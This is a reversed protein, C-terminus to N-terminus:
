LSKGGDVAVIQGTVYDSEECLFRVMRAVDEPTGAKGAPVRALERRRREEDFDEPWAVVGPSVGNVQVVPALEKALGKTLMALGAKSVCYALYGDRYREAHVDLLNVIKGFGRNLMPAACRRALWFPATLNAVLMRNWDDDSTTLLPTEFFESANNVLVDVYGIEVEIARVLSQVEDRSSLDARKAYARGGSAAIQAVLAEAETESNRYHAVVVAGRGAFEAAIARGVRRAAGTVLVVRDNLEMGYTLLSDHRLIAGLDLEIRPDRTTDHICEKVVRPM